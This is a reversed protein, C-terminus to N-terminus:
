ADKAVLIIQLVLDKLLEGADEGSSKCRYDTEACLEVARKLQGLSYRRASQMLQKAAYERNSILKALYGADQHMDLTLRAAYLRKLQSGLLAILAIPENSRDALLEALTSLADDFRRNAIQDTMDFVYAEPIHHAVADVDSISIRDGKAYAAVKELEPLLRSMLDGSVFILRELAEDDAQKGLHKFHDQLWKKLSGEDQRDFCIERGQKRLEKVLKKRGDPSYEMNQIFAVTCHEPIDALAALIKDIDGGKKKGSGEEDGGGLKNIDVDRLEVFSRETMFPLADIADQLQGPDLGPGDLRHYSFSDDGDPLCLSKLEQLFSGSLYDEPGWILYLRGPGERKLLRLETKYDAKEETKKWKDATKAM